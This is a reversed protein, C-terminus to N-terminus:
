KLLQAAEDIEDFYPRFSGAPDFLIRDSNENLHFLIEELLYVALMARRSGAKWDVGPWGALIPHAPHTTQELLGRLKEALRGPGRSGLAYTLPDYGAFRRDVCEWDIIWARQGDDMLNGMQFDGHSWAVGIEFLGATAALQGLRVALEEVEAGYSFLAEFGSALLALVAQVLQHSWDTITASKVSSAIVHRSLLQLAEAAVEKARVPPLRTVGTLELYRECFWTRAAGVELLEPIFPHAHATRFALENAIFRERAGVKHLVASWRKAPDVIRLRHNGGVVLCRGGEPVAPSVSFHLPMLLRRTWASTGAAVYARQLPRKWRSVSRGYERRVLDLCGSPTNRTAFYNLYSNGDWWQAAGKGTAARSGWRVDCARGHREQWYRALTQELVAGFPERRLLLSIRM